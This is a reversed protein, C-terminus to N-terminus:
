SRHAGVTYLAVLLGINNLALHYGLLHYALSPMTTIVLVALPARRRLALPANAVLTLTASLLDPPHGVDPGYFDWLWTGVVLPLALAGDLLLPDLASLWRLPSRTRIPMRWALEM